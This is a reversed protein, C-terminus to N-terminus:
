KKKEKCVPTMYALMYVGKVKKKNITLYICWKM